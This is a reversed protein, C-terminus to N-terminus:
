LDVFGIRDDMRDIYVTVETGEKPVNRYLYRSLYIKGQYECELMVPHGGNINVNKVTRVGTVRATVAYGGDCARRMAHRRRLDVSLFALGTLLFVAGISFFVYLIIQGDEGPEAANAIFGVPIFILSVPIFAFSLIGWVTWGYNKKMKQKWRGRTIRGTEIRKIRRRGKGERYPDMGFLFKQDPM